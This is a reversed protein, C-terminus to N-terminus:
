GHACELRAVVGDDLLRHASVDLVAVPHDGSGLGGPAHEEDALADAEPRLILGERRHDGVALQALNDHGPEVAPRRRGRPGFVAPQEIWGPAAPRQQVQMDVVHIKDQGQEARGRGYDRASGVQDALPCVPSVM